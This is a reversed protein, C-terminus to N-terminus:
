LAGRGDGRVFLPAQIGEPSSRLPILLCIPLNQALLKSSESCPPSLSLSLYLGAAQLAQCLPRASPHLNRACVHQQCPLAARAATSLPSHNPSQQMVPWQLNRKVLRDLPRCRACAPKGARRTGALLDCQPSSAPAHPLPPQNVTPKAHSPNTGGGGLELREINRRIDSVEVNGRLM